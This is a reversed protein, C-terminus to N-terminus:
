NQLFQKRVKRITAAVDTGAQLLANDVSVYIQGTQAATTSSWAPNSRLYQTLSPIDEANAHPVAIIVEPDEAIVVEDSIRVFGSSSSDGGTLLEAGAAELIDGGWSNPLFTFPTRGVGLLLMVRPRASIGEEAAEIQARRQKVTARAQHARGVLQGIKYTDALSGAISVPERVTVDIGLGEIAQNGKAWTRSSLVLDPDLSALQELNPGNPHSLPLVEIGKLKPSYRERGGLTEGVGVPPVGLEALTNAAFPTLAVIRRPGASQPAAQAAPVAVLVLLLAALAALRQAAASV